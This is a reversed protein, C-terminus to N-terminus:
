AAGRWRYVILGLYEKLARTTTDLSGSDPLFSLPFPAPEGQPGVDTSAPEVALGAKRFVALARPMHSASTVLLGSRFGQEKFLAATFAANEFTNRSKNEILISQPDIGFSVLIAAMAKAETDTADPEFVQGGTILIKRVKGAKFIRFAHLLRDASDHLDPYPAGTGAPSLAGGLVIAVDAPAYSEVPMAPYEGQLRNMLLGATAPMSAIWLAAIAAIALIGGARRRRLALLVMAALLGALAAGLPMAFVTLLKDTFITM